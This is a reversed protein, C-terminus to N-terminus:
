ADTFYEDTVALKAMEREPLASFTIEREARRSLARHYDRAANKLV